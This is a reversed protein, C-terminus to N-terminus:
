NQKTNSYKLKKKFKKPNIGFAELRSDSLSQLINKNKKKKKKKKSNIATGNRENTSKVNLLNEAQTQNSKKPSSKPKFSAEVHKETSFKKNDVPKIQKLKESPEVTKPEPTDETNSDLDDDDERTGYISRLLKHKKEINQSRQKYARVDTLEEQVPRKKLVVFASL